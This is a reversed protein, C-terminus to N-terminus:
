ANGSILEHFALVNETHRVIGRAFANYRSSAAIDMYRRWTEHLKLILESMALVLIHCLYCLVSAEPRRSWSGVRRAVLLGRCCQDLYGSGDPSLNGLLPQALLEKCIEMAVLSHLLLALTIEM